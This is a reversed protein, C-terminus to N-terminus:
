SKERSTEYKGAIQAEILCATRQISNWGHLFLTQADIEQGVGEREIRIAGERMTLTYKKGDTLMMEGKDIWLDGKRKSM